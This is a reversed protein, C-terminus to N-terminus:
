VRGTLFPEIMTRNGTLVAQATGRGLLSGVVNGTGSYGGIAWVRPRVERAIPLGSSTYGVSAAWRHTIPATVGLTNRLRRELAAQVDPTTVADYTWEADGGIDRAGGLAVAGDACQQWYDYGWRAYIPRAIRVETTPATALMQLRATRVEGSLEPVLRDLAGDVAVIVHRARIRGAATRVEGEAIQLAPTHEYLRAGDAIARRALAHCRALPQFTGDGPVLIGEGDDGEYREAPLGDEHMAALQSACDAREENSEAIRLSGPRSVTEPTEEAIRDLEALTLRYLRAARSRGYRAVADHHFPALGALLFGGNRGAAGGGTVGADIGVVSAGLRRLERTCVLGSGGLGVVCVDTEIDGELPALALGADVAWVPLASETPLPSM